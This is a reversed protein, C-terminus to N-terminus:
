RPYKEVDRWSGGTWPLKLRKSFVSNVHVRCSQQLASIERPYILARHCFLMLVPEPVRTDLKM